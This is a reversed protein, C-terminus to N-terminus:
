KLHLQNYISQQSDKLPGILALNLKKEQFIDSAIEQIDQRRIKRVENIIDELTYVKDLTAVSEGIWFMHDLTDELALRLQGLYFEKARKFEAVSILKDKIKNLERLILKISANVKHNDIGAHVIFAGTDQFFKTQTGIEYALGAKERVENFLRSSMNAGLVIHLLWLAHRLPHNRKLGHFGLVMHTQETEKHLLKLKPQLQQEKVAPFTNIDEEKFSSFVNVVKDTLRDCDLLGAASVIINPATYYRKKFSFLAERNIQNVSKITGVVPM